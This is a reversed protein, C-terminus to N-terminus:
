RGSGRKLYDDLSLVPPTWGAERAPQPAAPPHVARVEIRGITVQVVPREGGGKEMGPAPVREPAGARPPEPRDGDVADGRVAAMRGERSVPMLLAGADDEEGFPDGDERAPRLETERMGLPAIEERGGRGAGSPRADGEELRVPSPTSVSPDPQIAVPILLAQDDRGERHEGTVPNSASNPSPPVSEMRPAPRSPAADRQAADGPSAADGVAPAPSDAPPHPPSAAARLGPLPAPVLLASPAADADRADAPPPSLPRPPAAPEGAGRRVNSAPSAPADGEVTEEAFGDSPEAAAPGAFRSGLLPQLPPTAGLAREALRSLFDSM